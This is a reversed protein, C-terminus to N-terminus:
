KTRRLRECKRNEVESELWATMLCEDFYGFRRRRSEAVRTKKLIDFDGRFDKKGEVEGYIWRNLIALSNFWSVLGSRRLNDGCRDYRRGGKPEGRSWTM